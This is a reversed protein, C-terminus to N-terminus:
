QSCSISKNRTKTISGRSMIYKINNVTYLVFYIICIWLVMDDPNFEKAATTNCSIMLGKIAGSRESDLAVFVEFITPKDLKYM